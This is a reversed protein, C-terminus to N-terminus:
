CKSVDKRSGELGQDRLGIGLSALLNTRFKMGLGSHGGPVSWLLAHTGGGGAGGHDEQVVCSGM